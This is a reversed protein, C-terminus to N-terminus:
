AATSRLSSSSSASNEIWPTLTTQGLAKSREVRLKESEVLPPLSLPPIRYTTEGLMALPERSTTLVRLDPCGRLLADVLTACAALLHECNDLLLLLHKPRLYDRLTETLPRGAEERLGLVSAVTQPVLAPDALAASDQSTAHYLRHRLLVWPEVLVHHTTM